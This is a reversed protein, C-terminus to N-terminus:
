GPALQVAPRRRLHEVVHEAGGCLRGGDPRVTRIVTRAGGHQGTGDHQEHEADHQVQLQQPRQGPRREPGDRQRQHRRGPLQPQAHGPGHVGVADVHSLGCEGLQHDAVPRV